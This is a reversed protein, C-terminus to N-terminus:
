RCLWAEMCAFADQAGAVIPETHTSAATAELAAVVTRWRGGLAADGSFFAGGNAPGVALHRGAHRALVAGGLASGEIVYLVGALAEASGVAPLTAALPLTAPDIGLHGLDDALLAARPPLPALPALTPVAALRQALRPELAAHFGYLNALLTRYADITEVATKSGLRAELREHDARTASRLALM